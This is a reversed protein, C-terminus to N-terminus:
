SKWGAYFAEFLRRLMRRRATDYQTADMGLASQAEKRDGDALSHDFVALAPPDTRLARRMRSILDGREYWATPDDRAKDFVTNVVDDKLPERRQEQWWQNAISRMVQSFFAPLPVDSPWPRCGALVRVLAENLLDDPDHQRLGRAWIRALAALRLFDAGRLRRFLRRVESATLYAKDVM